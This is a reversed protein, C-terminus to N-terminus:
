LDHAAGSRPHDPHDARRAIGLRELVCMGVDSFHNEVLIGALWAPNHGPDTYVAVPEGAALHRFLRGTHNRGHLSVVRVDQWPEGLRSFGAAVASVNPLIRVREAGLRKVLFSGIGYFLPDGSTLVVITHDTMEPRSFIAWAM